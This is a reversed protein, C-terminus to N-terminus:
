GCDSGALEWGGGQETQAKWTKFNCRGNRGQSGKEGTDCWWWGWCCVASSERVIRRRDGDEERRVVDM